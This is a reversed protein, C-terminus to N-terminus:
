RRYAVSGCEGKLPIANVLLAAQEKSINLSAQLTLQFEDTSIYGIKERDNAFLDVLLQHQLVCLLWWEHWLFVRSLRVKHLNVLKWLEYLEGADHSLNSVCSDVTTEHEQVVFQSVLSKPAVAMQAHTINRM